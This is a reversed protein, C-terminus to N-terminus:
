ENKFILMALDIEQTCPTGILAECPPPPPPPLPTPPTCGKSPEIKVKQKEGDSFMFLYILFHVVILTFIHSFIIGPDLM